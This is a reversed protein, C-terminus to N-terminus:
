ICRKSWCSEWHGYDLAQRVDGKQQRSMASVDGKQLSQKRATLAVHLAQKALKNVRGEFVLLVDLFCAADFLVSRTFVVTAADSQRRHCLLTNILRARQKEDVCM